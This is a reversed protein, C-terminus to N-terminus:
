VLSKCPHQATLSLGEHEELLCKVEWPMEEAGGGRREPYPSVIYDLSTKFELNEQRTLVSFIPLPWWFGSGLVFAFFSCFSVSSTISVWSGRVTHSPVCKKLRMFVGCPVMQAPSHTGESPGSDTLVTVECKWDRPTLPEIQKDSAIRPSKM